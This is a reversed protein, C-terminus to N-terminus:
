HGFHRWGGTPLPRSRQGSVLIRGSRATGITGIITLPVPEITRGAHRRTRASLGKWRAPPLTFLLEYDDGGALILEEPRWGRVECMEDFGPRRPLLAEKVVAGRGSAECLHHLDAALGDSIDIMSTAGGRAAALGAALRAEPTLYRALAAKAVPDALGLVASSTGSRTTSWQDVGTGSEELLRRGAAALGPYGTVVLLDGPKAGARTVFRGAWADRRGLMTVGISLQAGRTVNGGVVGVKAVRASHAIGDYLADLATIELDEPIVLSVLAWTPVGGMAAIDSLNVELARFGVEAPTSWGRRFHVDEVLTDTTLLTRSVTPVVAADDGPGFPPKKRPPPLRRTLRDILDFESLDGIWRPRRPRSALAARRNGVRATM